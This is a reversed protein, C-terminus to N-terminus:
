YYVHCLLALAKVDTPKVRVCVLRRQQQIQIRCTEKGLYFSGERVPVNGKFSSAPHICLHMTPIYALFGPDHIHSFATDKPFHATNILRQPIGPISIPHALRDPSYFGSASCLHYTSSCSPIEMMPMIGGRTWQGTWCDSCQVNTEGCVTCALVM